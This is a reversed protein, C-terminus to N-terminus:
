ADSLKGQLNGNFDATMNTKNEVILKVIDGANLTLNNFIIYDNYSTYWTRKKAEISGNIDIKYVAKNEGSFDIRQLKLTKGVPVTYLLLDGTALGAVSLLENYSNIGIGAEDFEVKVSEGDGQCITTRVATNDNCEVFKAQEKGEITRPLAM